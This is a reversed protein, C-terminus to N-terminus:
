RGQAAPFPIVEAKNPAPKLAERALGPVQIMAQEIEAGLPPMEDLLGNLIHTQRLAEASNGASLHFSVEDLKQYARKLIDKIGAAPEVFAACLNCRPDNM